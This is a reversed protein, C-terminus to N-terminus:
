IKNKGALIGKIISSSFGNHEMENLATITVGGPTSVKDIEDEPNTQREDMLCAAGKIVQNAIKKSDSATLGMEIGALTCARLMRMVFATGSGGLVTVANMSGEGVAITEGLQDFINFVKDSVVANDGDTAIATISERVSIATNPMARFVNVEAPVYQRMLAISKGTVVSIITQGPKFSQGTSQLLTELHWPKVALIILDNQAVAENVNQSLLVGQDELYSIKSIDLDCVTLRGKEMKGSAMLGEAIASGMNGGGVILIREQM